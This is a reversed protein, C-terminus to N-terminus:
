WRDLRWIGAKTDKEANIGDKNQLLILLCTLLKARGYFILSSYPNIDLPLWSFFFFSDYIVEPIEM